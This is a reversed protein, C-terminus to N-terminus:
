CSTLLHILTGVSKTKLYCTTRRTLELGGPRVRYFFILNKFNLDSKKNENNKQILTYLTAV